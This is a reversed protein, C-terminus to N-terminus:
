TLNALDPHVFSELETKFAPHALIHPSPWGIRYMTPEYTTVIRTAQWPRWPWSFLREKWTRPIETHIPKDLDVCYQSYKIPIGGIPSLGFM